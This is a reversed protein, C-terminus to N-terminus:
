QYWEAMYTKKWYKSIFPEKEKATGIICVFNFYHLQKRIEESTNVLKGLALTPIWLDRQLFHKLSFCHQVLSTATDRGLGMALSWLFSFSAKECRIEHFRFPFTVFLMLLTEKRNFHGLLVQRHVLMFLVLVRFSFCSFPIWDHNMKINVGTSKSVTVQWCTEQSILRCLKAYTNYM